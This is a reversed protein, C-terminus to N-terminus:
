LKIVEKYLEACVDYDEQNLLDYQPNSLVIVNLDINSFSSQDFGVLSTIIQGNPPLHDFILRFIERKNTEDLDANNPTDFIVPYIVSNPNFEYKTKLLMLLWAVTSINTETGDSGLKDSAKTGEKISLGTIKYELLLKNFEESYFNDVEQRQKQFKKLNNSIEKTEEIISDLEIQVEGIQNIINSEIEKLGLAKLGDKVEKSSNFIEDEIAKAELQIRAYHSNELEITRNVDALQEEISLRQIGYGDIHKVRHFYYSQDDSITTDCYPCTHTKLVKRVVSKEDSIVLDLDKLLQELEVRINHAKMLARRHKNLSNSVKKYRQEHQNIKLKLDEINLISSGKSTIEKSMETLVKARDELVKRRLNSKRLKEKLENEYDSGVGLHSYILESYYSAPFASLNNFTRFETLNIEKQEIYNLIYNFAPPSLKYNGDHGRLYIGQNFLKVLEESLKDRNNISFILGKDSNLLDKDYLKFLSDRRLMIYNCDSVSFDLIYIYKGESEWRSYNFKADAGLTHFISRLISSKGAYNGGVIGSSTVVNIGKDFTQFKAERSEASIISISNVILNM